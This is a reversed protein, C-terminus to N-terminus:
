QIRKSLEVKLLHQVVSAQQNAQSVMTLAAENAMRKSALMSTEAAYDADLIQSRAFSTNLSINTLNDTIHDMRSLMAGYDGRHKNLTTLADEILDLAFAANYIVNVNNLTKKQFVIAEGKSNDAGPSGTVMRTGDSSVGVSTGNLANAASGDVDTGQIGWQFGNWSYIRAHGANDGAGDNGPAGLVVTQGDNSITASSGSQDGSSEGDIDSGRQEWRSGSWDFVRAHGANSGNGDNDKAGVVLSKGDGSLDVSVGSYDSASEGDIDVGRQVWQSGSLDYVRVHGSDSGNAGDNNDAGVALTRGDTSLSISVGSNDNNAEGDIDSGVQTWASGSWQYVRVHGSDQGNGDNNIAGIAITNGDGNVAVANGSMDGTNEGDIDAGRQQWSSGNWDHVRVHGIDTYSTGSSGSYEDFSGDTGDDGRAGVVLTNGSDSIAIASGSLTYSGAVEMEGVIDNGRQSYEKGNWDLVRAIGLLTGTGHNRPAGIAVSNGDATMAVMGGMEEGSVSGGHSTTNRGPITVMKSWNGSGLQNPKISAFNLDVTQGANAGAAITIRGVSGDLLTKNNFQTNMAIRDVELTLESIEGQLATKDAFTNSDSGAQVAIEKMRFLISEVNALGGDAIQLMSIADNANRVAQNLGSIQTTMRSTIALGAADDAASNIRLGTSLREMSQGLVRQHQVAANAARHAVTNTNIRM